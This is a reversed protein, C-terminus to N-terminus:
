DFILPLAPLTLGYANVKGILLEYNIWDFAKWLDTLLARCFKGKDVTNKCKKNLLTLLCHQTSYGKWFRCKKDSLFKDFNVSIKEFLIRELIKSFM